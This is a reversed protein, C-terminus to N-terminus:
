RKTMSMALRSRAYRSHTREARRHIFVTAGPPVGESRM